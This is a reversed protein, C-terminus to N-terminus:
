TCTMETNRTHLLREIEPMLGYALALLKLPHVAARPSGQEMQLKCASCETAGVTWNAERVANILRWGARLSNRFNERKLGWLGAMGSCGQECRQVQLRPVLRLLNEGPTGQGLARVHCPLHYGVVLPLPRFDLRLKGTQHMGWLYACADSAHQAVLQSDADDLLAGYERTLCLAASPETTLIAYGQRVAEALVRVNRQALRRAPEIAGQSLLSMGSHMQEPPVYVAVGNHELVAVLADGLQPDHYNAFTDVFYLAKQGSRRTPRTLRRRAARRMFTRKAFRPLKRAQSIGTLRELLWRAGRNGLLRNSLPGLLSGLGCLADLRSLLWDSLGLGNAAVYAAKAELMLKPIDVAAPCELRCQHCNVCLDAVAKFEDRAIEEPAMQGSLLGRLLNAKARPSAEEAPQIHFVPCMRVGPALTRCAGCGNCNRAQEALEGPQWRLQLDTLPLESQPLAPRLDHLMLNPTDGVVKGPNFLNQPDFIRKIERFVDFLPGYQQRVFQTRSLGDGHEGSITGGAQWVAAYVDEALRQLLVPHEPDELDVFPRLHLQGHGAHAFLSATVQHKKLLNQLVVLFSGLAEPPVAFDEVGPVARAAGKLRFLTPTVRRALGWFLEVEDDTVALRSGFALRKKRRVRDVILRLKDRVEAASDGDQEVLLLAEAEAPVLLDYRPDTERALGLHRRDMLDCASPSFSLIEGVARVASELRDFLLLAVCRFKPLAQTALTLETTLALTGESGTLLAPLDLMDPRYVGRLLYGSRNVVARPQHREILDAARRLVDALQNCLLRRREDPDHSLGNELPEQGVDLAKGDALVIQMRQVHSRASGYRLWHSGSGDLAVVSGLTTVQGNAPDPGFCRGSPALEANLRELVVGPQVRVTAPNLEQIRRFHRSFDLVLGRGLAEGALGTGAGRAHISFRNDRAYNVCAVVDAVNRPRVVGLPSMQYLSADSAYLQRSVDDCRVEGAVLGGLDEAIRQREPDM